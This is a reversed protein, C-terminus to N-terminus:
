EGGQRRALLERTEKMFADFDWEVVRGAEVDDVGESVLAKLRRFKEGQECPWAVAAEQMEEPLRELAEAARNVFDKM